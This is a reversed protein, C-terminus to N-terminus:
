RPARAPNTRRGMVMRRAGSARDTCISHQSVWLSPDPVVPARRRGRAAGGGTGGTAEMEELTVDAEAVSEDRVDIVWKEYPSLHPIFSAMFRELWFQLAGCYDDIRPYARRVADFFAQFTPAAVYLDQLAAPPKFQETLEGWSLRAKEDASALFEVVRSRYADHTRPDQIRAGFTHEYWTRGTKVIYLSPLSISHAGCPVSSADMLSLHTVWPCLARICRLTARLMRKTESRDLCEFARGLACGVHHKVDNLFAIPENPYVVIDLCDAKGSGGVELAIAAVAGGDDYRVKLVLAHKHASTTM